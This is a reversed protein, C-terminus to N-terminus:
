GGPGMAAWTRGEPKEGSWVVKEAIKPEAATLPLALIFGALLFVHRMIRSSRRLPVRATTGTRFSVALPLKVQSTTQKGTHCAVKVSPFTAQGVAESRATWPSADM